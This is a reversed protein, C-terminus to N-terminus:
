EGKFYNEIFSRSKENDQNICLVVLNGNEVMVAKNIRAVEEPIYNEYEKRKDEIYEAIEEKLEKVAIQNKAKFVAVEEATAGSGLYVCVSEVLEEVDHIYFAMERDIPMLEDDFNLSQSIAKAFEDVNVSSVASKGCATLIVAVLLLALIRKM